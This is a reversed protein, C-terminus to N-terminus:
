TKRTKFHAIIEPWPLFFVLVAQVTKLKLWLFHDNPLGLVTVYLFYFLPTYLITRKFALFGDCATEFTQLQWRKGQAHWQIRQDWDVSEFIRRALRHQPSRDDYGVTITEPWRVLILYSSLIAITFVRFDYWALLFAMSHFYVGTWIAWHRLPRLLFGLTIFGEALITSWCMLKSLLLPPLHAAANVYSERRIISGMWHEFYQGSRWDVDFLKNICAGSYAIALQYRLLVLPDKANSLSTLLFVCGCFFHVNTYNTRSSLVSVIFVMGLMFCSARISRNFLVGVGGIVFFFQLATHFQQSTGLHDFVPWFPLFHDSLDHFYDKLFLGVVILKVMLVVNTPLTPYRCVFPNWSRM